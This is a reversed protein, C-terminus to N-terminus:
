DIPIEITFNDDADEKDPTYEVLEFQEDTWWYDLHEM